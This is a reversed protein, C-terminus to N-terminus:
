AAMYSRRRRAAMASAFAREEAEMVCRLRETYTDRHMARAAEVEAILRNYTKARMWKPRVPVPQFISGYGAGLKAFVRALRAHGKQIPDLRQVRYALGLSARGAFQHAGNPLYLTLVRRGSRPCVMFWRRGGFHWPVAIM